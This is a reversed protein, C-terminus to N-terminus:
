WVISLTSVMMLWCIQFLIPITSLIRMIKSFNQV